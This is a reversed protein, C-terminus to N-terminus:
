LGVGPLSPNWTTAETTCSSDYYHLLLLLLVLPLLQLLLLPSGDRCNCGGGNQCLYLALFFCVMQCLGATKWSSHSYFIHFVYIKCIYIKEVDSFTPYPVAVLQFLHLHWSFFSLSGCSARKWWSTRLVSLCRCPWPCGIRSLFFKTIEKFHNQLLLAAISISLVSQPCTFKWVM